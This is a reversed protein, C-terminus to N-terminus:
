APTPLGSVKRSPPGCVPDPGCGSMTARAPSVRKATTDSGLRPERSFSPIIFAHVEPLGIVARSRFALGIVKRGVVLCNQSIFLRTTVRPSSSPIQRRM